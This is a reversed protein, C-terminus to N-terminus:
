YLRTSLLKKATDPYFVTEDSPIEQNVTEGNMLKLAMDLVPVGIYPNCEVDAQIWGDIMAQVGSHSGDVSVIKIDGPKLGAEKMASIAGVAMDDNQAFVGQIKGKYDALFKKMVTKGKATTFDGPKSDLITINQNLSVRFGIGRGTVSASGNIGSLEVITGGDPLLKNMEAAARNGEL